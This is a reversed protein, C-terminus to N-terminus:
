REEQLISRRRLQTSNSNKKVREKDSFFLRYTPRLEPLLPPKREPAVLPGPGSWPRYYNVVLKSSLCSIVEVTLWPGLMGHFLNGRATHSSARLLCVRQCSGRLVGSSLSRSVLLQVATTKSTKRHDPKTNWASFVTAPLLRLRQGCGRFGARTCVQKSRKSRHKIALSRFVRQNKKHTEPATPGVGVDLLEAFM